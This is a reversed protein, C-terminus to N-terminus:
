DANSTLIVEESGEALLEYCSTKKPDLWDGKPEGYANLAALKRAVDETRARVVIGLMTGMNPSMNSLSWLKM